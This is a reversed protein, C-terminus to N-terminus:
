GIQRIPLAGHQRWGRETHFRWRREADAGGAQDDGDWLIETWGQLHLLDGSSFDAFLLAARPELLMNGLTNFYRNGRFDPITLTDGQIDIFGQPGGRHSIDVGRHPGDVAGSSTAVFFTDAASIQKRAEADLGAFSAGPVAPPAAAPVYHLERPRIYKPCNGFSQQVAVQLGQSDVATVLGNARNRRRTHFEIGLLGVPQGPRLLSSVPGQMVFAPHLHLGRNDPSSIFGARGSVIGAVPAGEDDVTALLLFPLMAFFDRHQEPMFDRIAGGSAGGGALVQARLEGIHFPGPAIPEDMM